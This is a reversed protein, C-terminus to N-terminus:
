LKRIAEVPNYRIAKLSPYIAAVLATFFMSIVVQSILDTNLRPYIIEAIGYQRMGRSYMSLNLGTESLWEVTFIGLLIGVPVALLALIVTETMIMSFVRKRNMGIAMLIGLERHRELVAMLMTNIIGFILALMVIITFIWSSIAMQEEYMGIDPSLDKYTEVKLDPYSAKLTSKTNELLDLDRLLLAIEHTSSSQGSLRSLDTNLIFVNGEDYPTSETEFLGVVRFAGSTINGRIDQFTLVVKKRIGVDLKDALGTSIFIPNRKDQNLYEGDSIFTYTSSVLIEKEPEIGVIKIGNAGRSSSIMGYAIGRRTVAVVEPDSELASIISESQDITYLIEPEERFAPHHLQIHALEKEINGNIYSWAFGESFSMLFIISWIGAAVAGMVLLSRLGHRWINRWAIKLVKM